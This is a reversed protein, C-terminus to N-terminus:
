PAIPSNMDTQVEAPTLARGYVRVEDIRGSFFDSNSAGQIWAGVLLTGTISSLSVAQPEGAPAGDLYAVLTSGDSVIAVHHWARRSIASGFPHEASGDYFTIM